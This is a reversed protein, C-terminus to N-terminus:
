IQRRISRGHLIWVSKENGDDLLGTELSTWFSSVLGRSEVLVSATNTPAPPVPFSALPFPPSLSLSGNAVKAPCQTGPSTADLTAMALVM